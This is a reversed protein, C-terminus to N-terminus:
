KVMEKEKDEPFDTPHEKIDLSWSLDKLKSATLKPMYAEASVKKQGEEKKQIEKSKHKWVYLRGGVYYKFSSELVKVFPRGHIKLFALTGGLAGVPVMFAIAVPLPLLTYFILCLGAAGALYIFQKLSFPGFIKDEVETFQPVQFRM